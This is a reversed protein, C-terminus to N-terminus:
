GEDKMKRTFIRGAYDLMDQRDGAKLDQSKRQRKRETVFRDLADVLVDPIPIIESHDICEYVYGSPHTSGEGVVYKRDAQFDFIGASKSGLRRSKDTHRFYLHKGRSTKVTYTAPLKLGLENHFAEPNDIDLICFTDNAVVGYNYDPLGDMISASNLAREPWDPLKTGKERPPIPIISLGRDLTPQYIPLTSLSVAVGGPETGVFSRDPRSRETISPNGNPYLPNPHPDDQNTTPLALIRELPDKATQTMNSM